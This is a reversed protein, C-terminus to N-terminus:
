IAIRGTNTVEIQEAESYSKAIAYEEIKELDTEDTIHVTTWITDELSLVVRKTLPTSVFTYPATFVVPGDETLVAIRGKTIFSLHAHKHIKGIAWFGAPLSMERAYAGPAFLHRVPLATDLDCTSIEGSAKGEVAAAELDLIRRRLESRTYPTPGFVANGLSPAIEEAFKVLEIVVRDIATPKREAFEYRREVGRCVYTGIM